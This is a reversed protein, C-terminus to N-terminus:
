QLDNRWRKSLKEVVSEDKVHKDTLYRVAKEPSLTVEDLKGLHDGDREKVTLEVVTRNKV